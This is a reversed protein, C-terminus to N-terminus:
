GDNEEERKLTYIAYKKAGESMETEIDYGARRLKFIVDSLRYCGFGYLAELPSISGYRELFSLCNEIHTKKEDFFRERFEYANRDGYRM